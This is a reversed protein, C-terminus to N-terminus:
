KEVINDNDESPEIEVEPLPEVIKVTPNRVMFNHDIKYGEPLDVKAGPQMQVYDVLNGKRIKVALPVRGANIIQQLNSM